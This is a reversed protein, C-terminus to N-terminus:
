GQVAKSFTSFRGKSTMVHRRGFEGACTPRVILEVYYEVLLTYTGCNLELWLPETIRSPKASLPSPPPLQYRGDGVVGGGGGWMWEISDTSLEEM